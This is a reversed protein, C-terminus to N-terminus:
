MLETHYVFGDFRKCDNYIEFVMNFRLYWTKIATVQLSPVIYQYVATDHYMLVTIFYQYLNLDCQYIHGPRPFNVM